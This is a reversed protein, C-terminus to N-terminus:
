TGPRKPCEKGKVEDDCVRLNDLYQGWRKVVDKRIPREEPKYIPTRWSKQVVYFNKKGTIAKFETVEGLGNTTNM